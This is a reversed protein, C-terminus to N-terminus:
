PFTHVMALRVSWRWWVYFLFEEKENAFIENRSCKFFIYIFLLHITYLLCAVLNPVTPWLFFCEAFSMWSIYFFFHLCRIFIWSSDFNSRCCFQYQLLPILLCWRSNFFLCQIASPLDIFKSAVVWYLCMFLSHRILGILLIPFWHTRWDVALWLMGFFFSENTISKTSKVNLSSAFSTLFFEFREM